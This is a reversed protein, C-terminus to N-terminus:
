ASGTALWRVADAVCRARGVYLLTGAASRIWCYAGHILTVVRDGGDTLAAGHAHHIAYVRGHQFDAASGERVQRAQRVKPTSRRESATSSKTARRRRIKLGARRGIGDSRCQQVKDGRSNNVM